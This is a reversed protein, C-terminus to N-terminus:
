SVYRVDKLERIIGDFLKIHVTGIREIQCTHINGFSVLGGNLKEFSPVMGTQSVCSLYYGYGFNM